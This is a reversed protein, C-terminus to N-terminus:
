EENKPEWDQGCIKLHLNKIFRADYYNCFTVYKEMNTKNGQWGTFEENLRRMISTRDRSSMKPDYVGFLSMARPKGAITVVRFLLRSTPTLISHFPPSLDVM